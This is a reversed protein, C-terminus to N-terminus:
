NRKVGSDYIIRRTIKAKRGFQNEAEIIITNLGEQLNIKASFNGSSDLYVTEGNIKIEADKETQGKFQLVGYDVTQDAAPESVHLQPVTNFSSVQHWLYFVTGALVFVGM